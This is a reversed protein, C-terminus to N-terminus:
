SNSGIELECSQCDFLLFTLNLSGSLSIKTSEDKNSQIIFSSDLFYDNKFILFDKDGALAFVNGSLLSILVMLPILFGNRFIYRKSV